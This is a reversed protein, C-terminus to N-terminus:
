IVYKYVIIAGIILILWKISIKGTDEKTHTHIYGHVILDWIKKM